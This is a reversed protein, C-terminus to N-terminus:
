DVSDFVSVILFAVGLATVIDCHGNRLWSVPFGFIRLIFRNLVIYIGFGLIGINVLRSLFAVQAALQLEAPTQFRRIPRNADNMGLTYRRIAFYRM